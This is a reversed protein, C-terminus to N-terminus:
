LHGPQQQGQHWLQYTGEEEDMIWGLDREDQATVKIPWPLYGIQYHSGSRQIQVVRFTSKWVRRVLSTAGTQECNIPLALLHNWLDRPNGMYGAQRWQTFAARGEQQDLVIVYWYPLEEKWRCDWPLPHFTGQHCGYSTSWHHSQQTGKTSHTGQLVLVQLGASALTEPVPFVNPTIHPSVGTEMGQNRCEHIRIPFPAKCRRQLHVAEQLIYGMRESYKRCAPM